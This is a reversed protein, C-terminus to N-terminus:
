FADYVLVSANELSFCLFSLQPVIVPICSGSLLMEVETWVAVSSQCRWSLVGLQGQVELRWWLTQIQSLSDVIFMYFVIFM